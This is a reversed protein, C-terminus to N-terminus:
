LDFKDLPIKSKVRDKKNLWIIGSGSFDKVQAKSDGINNSKDLLISMILLALGTGMGIGLVCGCILAPM